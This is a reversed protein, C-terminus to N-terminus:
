GNDEETDRSHAMANCLGNPGRAAHCWMGHTQKDQSGEDRVQLHLHGEIGLPRFAACPDLRAAVMRRAAPFLNSEPNTSSAHFVQYNMMSQVANRQCINMKCRSPDDLRCSCPGWGSYRPNLLAWRAAEVYPIRLLSPDFKGQPNVIQRLVECNCSACIQSPKVQKDSLRSCQYM